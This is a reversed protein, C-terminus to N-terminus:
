NNTIMTSPKKYSCFFNTFKKTAKQQFKNIGYTEKMNNSITYLRPEYPKKKTLTIETKIIPHKKLLM